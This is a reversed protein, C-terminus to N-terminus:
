LASVVPIFILLHEINHAAQITWNTSRPKSVRADQCEPAKFPQWHQDRGEVVAARDWVQLGTVTNASNVHEADCM